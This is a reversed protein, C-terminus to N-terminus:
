STDSPSTVWNDREREKKKQIKKERERKKKRIPKTHTYLHTDKKIGQAGATNIELHTNEQWTVREQFPSTPSNSPSQGPTLSFNDKGSPILNPAAM